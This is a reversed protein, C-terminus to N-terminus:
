ARTAHTTTQNVISQTNNLVLTGQGQADYSNGDASMIGNQQVYVKGIQVGNQDLVAETFSYHFQGSGGMVWYGNGPGPTFVTCIGGIGYPNTADFRMISENTPGTGNFTVQLSWQGVPSLPGAAHAKKVAQHHTLGSFVQAGFLISVLAVVIVFCLVSYRFTLSRM